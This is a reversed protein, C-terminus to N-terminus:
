IFEISDRFAVYRDESNTDAGGFVFTVRDNTRVLMMFAKVLDCSCGAAIVAEYAENGQFKKEYRSGVRAGMLFATGDLAAELDFPAGPALQVSGILFESDHNTNDYMTM